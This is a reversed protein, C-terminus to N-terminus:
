KFFFICHGSLFTNETIYKVFDKKDKKPLENIAKKLNNYGHFMEFHLKINHKRKDFFILPDNILSRFGRKILKSKKKVGVNWPDCLIVDYNKWDEDPEKQLMKELDNINNINPYFGQRGASNDIYKKFKYKVFYRRYQCMGFWSDTDYKELVNKWYWYHFSTESYSTNKYAINEGSNELIYDSPFESKGVGFPILGLKNIDKIPRHTICYIKM